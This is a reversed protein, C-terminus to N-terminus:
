VNIIVAAIARCLSLRGDCGRDSVCLAASEASTCDVEPWLFPCCKGTAACGTGALGSGCCLCSILPLTEGLGLCSPGSSCERHLVGWCGPVRKQQMGKMYEQQIWGRQWRSSKGPAVSASLVILHCARCLEDSSSARLVVIFHAYAILQVQGDVHVATYCALYGGVLQKTSNATASNGGPSSDSICAAHCTGNGSLLMM